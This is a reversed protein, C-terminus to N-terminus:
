PRRHGRGGEKGHHGQAIRAAAKEKANYQEIEWVRIKASIAARM